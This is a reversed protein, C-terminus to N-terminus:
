CQTYGVRFGKEVRKIEKLQSPMNKESSANSYYIARDDKDSYYGTTSSNSIHARLCM